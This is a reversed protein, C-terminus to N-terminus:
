KNLKLRVKKKDRFCVLNMKKEPGKCISKGTTRPQAIHVQNLQFSNGLIYERHPELNSNALSANTHSEYFLLPTVM